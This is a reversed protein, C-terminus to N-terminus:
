VAKIIVFKDNVELVQGSISAHIPLSLKGEDAQAIIDGPKVMDGKKVIPISQAGIHQSLKIKVEKTSVLTDQLPADVNYSNLGLREVLREMPVMRYDRMPHVKGAKIGKPALVGKKRLGSRCEAVLKRPTLGQPCAFMECLGCSSCYMTNIYTEVDATIGFSANKMFKNPAFPHGLLRRPCLDTCNECQCCTSMARKMEISTNSLKKRVVPNDKPLVLLGNSTKNVPDYGNVITGMMPGGMIYVPDDIIPGGALEVVEEVAMGVPVKVTIPNKVEGAITIYTSYVPEQYKLARYINLVTEVNLVAIGAEIPISGPPIVTGTTEYILVVEDGMPYVEPLLKIEINPYSALNSKVADIAKTYTAKVAIILNTAGLIEGITGMTSMIEYAYKQLLQRHLKLLPECEACNLIITNARKDMKVYTPFGAGGAGVIGKDKVISILSNIDM